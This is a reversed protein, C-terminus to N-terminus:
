EEGYLLEFTEYHDETYYVLGDNSFIIRKAGRTKAGLTDIDCETYTRGKKEPLRGEYNGFRDGGICKGPAYTEVSGGEWGLARAEKKTIFNAPLKGYLHIYLAVDEKSSYSGDEALQPTPEPTPGPTPAATPELTPAATPAATPEPTEATAGASPSAPAPDITELVPADPAPTTTLVEQLVDGALELVDQSGVAGCGGLLALLLAIVLLLSSFRKM